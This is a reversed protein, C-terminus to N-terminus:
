INFKFLKFWKNSYTLTFKKVLQYKKLNSPDEQSVHYSEPERGQWM